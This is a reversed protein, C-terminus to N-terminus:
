SCVSAQLQARVPSCLNSQQFLRSAARGAVGALRQVPDEVMASLSSPSPFARGTYGHEGVAPQPNPM